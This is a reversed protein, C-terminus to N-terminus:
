SSVRLRALKDFDIAVGLGPKDPVLLQGDKIALREEVVDEAYGTFGRVDSAYESLNAMAAGVHASAAAGIVGEPMSGLTCPIGYLAALEFIRRSSAIGGAESVYVHLLDAAGAELHRRADGEDWVGEDISLLANTHQRLWASEQLRECPLPQEVIVVGLAAMEDILRKAQKADAWAMNADVRLRVEDPVAQRISRIAQLDTRSDLGVKIKLEKYGAAAKAVAVEAMQGAAGMSVGGTLPLRDRVKGGLLDYVPRKLLKGWVDWLAMEVGAKALLHRKSFLCFSDLLAAIRTFDHVELGILKEAWLENVERCLGHAGGFWALAIEGAGYQGSEERIIVIGHNSSYYTGWSDSVPEHFPLRVPIAEVSIIKM